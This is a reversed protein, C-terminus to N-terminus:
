EGFIEKLKARLTEGHLGRAILNGEKDYLFMTPIFDVAYKQAAVADKDWVHNWILGDKAIAEVWKDKVRDRSIGVIDFGKEHYKKYMAVVNPNEKRCPGCWSAWFDVLVYTGKGLWNSLKEPRDEPNNLEVDVFPKGDLTNNVNELRQQIAAAAPTTKDQIGAVLASLEEATLAYPTQLFVRQGVINNSNAMVFAKTVEQQQADLEEYRANISEDLAKLQKEKEASRLKKNENIAKKNNGYEAMLTSIKERVAKVDRQYAAYNDNLASGTVTSGQINETNLTINMVENGATLFFGFSKNMAVSLFYLDAPQNGKFKFTGNTVTVSDVPVPKSRLEARSLFIMTGDAVGEATGNITYNAPQGCAFLM